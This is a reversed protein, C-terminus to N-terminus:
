LHTIKTIINIVLVHIQRGEIPYLFACENLTIYMYSAKTKQTRMAHEKEGQDRPWQTIKEKMSKCSRTMKFVYEQELDQYEIVSITKTM